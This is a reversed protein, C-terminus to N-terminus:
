QCAASIMGLSTLNIGDKPDKMLFAKIEVKHDKHREPHHFASDVMKYTLNGLAVGEAAKLEPEESRDPNRTRIPATTRTLLWTNDPGATVCGIMQVLSGAPLAEPGDKGIFQISKLTDVLLEDKGGPISNQQLIYSVIDVYMDDKLGGPNDRPMTQKINAFLSNLSDERWRNMFREGILASNQGTLDGRHCGACAARYALVGRQAQAESYVGDWITKTAAAQESAMLRAACILTLLAIGSARKFMSSEKHNTQQATAYEFEKRPDASKRTSTHDDM